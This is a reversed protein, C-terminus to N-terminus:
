NKKKLLWRFTLCPALSSADLPLTETEARVGRWQPCLVRDRSPGQHWSGPVRVVSCKWQRLQCIRGPFFLPSPFDSDPFTRFDVEGGPIFLSSVCSFAKVTDSVLKIVRQFDRCRQRTGIACYRIIRGWECCLQSSWILAPGSSCMMSTLDCVSM